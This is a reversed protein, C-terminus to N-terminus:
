GVPHLFEEGVMTKLAPDHSTVEARQGVARLVPLIRAKEAGPDPSLHEEFRGSFEPAVLDSKPM